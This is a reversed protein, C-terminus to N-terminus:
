NSCGGGSGNRLGVILFAAALHVTTTTTRMAADDYLFLFIPNM